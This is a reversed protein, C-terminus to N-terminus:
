LPPGLVAFGHSPGLAAVREFLGAPPPGPPPLDRRPAPAGIDDVFRDFGGPVTLQLLRAPQAGEVRFAHPVGKPLFAFGGADLTVTRDGCVFTVRGELVCFQEDEVHHVHLPPGFGPPALQEILTFRGGTDSSGARVLVLTGLFWYAPGDSAGQALMRAAAQGDRVHGEREM